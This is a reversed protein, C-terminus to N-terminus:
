FILLILNQKFSEKWFFYKSFYNTYWWGAAIAKIKKMNKSDNCASCIQVVFLFFNIVASAIAAVLYNLGMLGDGTAGSVEISANVIPLIVFMVPLFFVLDVLIFCVVRAILLRKFSSVTEQTVSHEMLKNM